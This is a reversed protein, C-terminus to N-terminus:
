VMIPNVKMTGMKTFDSRAYIKFNTNEVVGDFWCFDSDGGSGRVEVESAITDAWQRANDMANDGSASFMCTAGFDDSYYVGSVDPSNGSLQPIGSLGLEDIDGVVLLPKGEFVKMSLENRFTDSVTSLDSVDLIM